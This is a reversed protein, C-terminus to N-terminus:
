LWPAHKCQLFLDKTEEAERILATRKGNVLLERARPRTNYQSSMSFGYAGANGIVLLDGRELKPLPRVKALIDGSDCISGCINIPYKTPKRWKNAVIIHHYAGYMKPRVLHNISVDLGAFRQYSEKIMHVRGLLVGADGVFYRGPEVMLTVNGLHHERCKRQFMATVLRGTEEIDLPKEDPHYPIGFGGGIDIFEFRISLKKAILGAADLITGTINEFYDPELVCSGTMMHMGFRKIGSKKASAYAELAKGIPIGFKAEPGATVNTKITAKGFGPNIRFSLIEPKGFKLLRPLLALDDLNIRSCYKAGYRLEEDTCYNGTYLLKSSPLGVSKGLWIEAPNCVDMGAGEDVLIKAIAPNNNAKVAYLIEFNAYHSTFADRLRRFNERIRSESYVYLPTGFRQALSEVSLGEIAVKNKQITLPKPLYM